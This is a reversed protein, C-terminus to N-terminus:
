SSGTVCFITSLLACQNTNITALDESILTPYYTDACHVCKGGAVTASATLCNSGPFASVLACQNVGM